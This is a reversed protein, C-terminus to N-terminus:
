PRLSSLYRSLGSMCKQFVDLSQAAKAQGFAGEITAIIFAAASETDVESRVRGTQQGHRLASSLGKRWLRYLGELRRRFERDVLAMEQVLNNLPCGLHVIGPVQDSLREQILQALSEVPDDTDQLPQLWWREVYDKLIEDVVAYGLTLKDPFYHYLAGKTVGTATLTNNLSSAQFGQAHFSHFAAQLIIQRTQKRNRKKKMGTLIYPM